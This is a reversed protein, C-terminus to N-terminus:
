FKRLNPEKSVNGLFLYGDIEALTQAEFLRGGATGERYKKPTQVVSDFLAGSTIELEELAAVSETRVTSEEDDSLFDLDIDDTEKAFEKTTALHSIDGLDEMETEDHHDDEGAVLIAEPGYDLMHEDDNGATGATTVLIDKNEKSLKSTESTGKKQKNISKLLTRESKRESNRSLDYKLSPNKKKEAGSYADNNQIKKSDTGKATETSKASSKDTKKKNSEAKKTKRKHGRDVASVDKAASTAVKQDLPFMKTSFGHTSQFNHLKPELFNSDNNLTKKELHCYFLFVNSAGAM